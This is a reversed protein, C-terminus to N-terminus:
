KNMKRLIKRAAEVEKESYISHLYRLTTAISSHGMQKQIIGINIQNQALYSAFTRRLCHAGIPRRISKCQVAYENIMNIISRKNFRGKNQENKVQTEFVYGVKRAGVFSRLEKMLDPEVIIIRQSSETKTKFSLYYKSGEKASLFIRNHKFDLEPITLNALEAVRLGTELMLRIMLYHKFNNEKAFDLLEKRQDDTLAFLLRKGKKRPKKGEQKQEMSGSGFPHDILM